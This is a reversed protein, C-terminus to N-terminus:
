EAQPVLNPGLNEWAYKTWIEDAPHMVAVPQTGGTRLAGPVFWGPRSSRFRVASLLPCDAFAGECLYELSAPLDAAVLARCGSFAGEAVIKVGEPVRAARLAADARLLAAGDATLLLGGTKRFNRNAADVTVVLRPCAAFAFLGVSELGAPLDVRGLATCGAFARGGLVRLGSPLVVQKLDTLGSFAGYGIETVTDPVTYATVRGPARLLVSGDRSLLAGNRDSRCVPNDPHVAFRAKPTDDFAATGVTRVSAPLTVESLESCGAFAAPGVATVGEPLDARFLDGRDAYDEKGIVAPWEPQVFPACGTLVIAAALPAAICRNTM